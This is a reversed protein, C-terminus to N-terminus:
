SLRPRMPASASLPVMVVMVEVVAVEPESVSVMLPVSPEM